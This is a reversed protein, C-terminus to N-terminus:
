PHYHIAGFGWREALWRPVFEELAQDLPTGVAEDVLWWSVTADAGDPAGPEPPDIYLCGLLKTEPADFIGYLFTERAAIEAAHRALDERDAAYSMTAVPWGWAEGYKEWLRERSGMVAPYDLDVDAAGMPRLHEGTTLEVREPIALDPALWRM